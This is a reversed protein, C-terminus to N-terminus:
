SFSHGRFDKGPLHRRPFFFSLSWCSVARVPLTSFLICLFVRCYRITFSLIIVCCSTWILRQWTIKLIEWRLFTQQKQNSAGVGGTWWGCRAVQSQAIYWTNWPTEWRPVHRCLWAWPFTHTRHTRHYSLGERFHQLGWISHNFMM